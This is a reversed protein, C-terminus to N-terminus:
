IVDCRCTMSCLKQQKTKLYTRVNNNDTYIM